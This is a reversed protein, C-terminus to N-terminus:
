QSYRINIFFLSFYFYFFFFYEFFLALVPIKRNKKDVLKNQSEIINLKIIIVKMKNPDQIQNKNNSNNNLNRVIVYDVYINKSNIM